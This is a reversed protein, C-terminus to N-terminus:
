FQVIEISAVLFFAVAVQVVGVLLFPLWHGLLTDTLTFVDTNCSVNHYGRCYLSM